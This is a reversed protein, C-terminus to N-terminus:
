CSIRCLTWCVRTSNISYKKCGADLDAIAGSVFRFAVPAGPELNNAILRNINTCPINRQTGNDLRIPYITVGVSIRYSNTEETYGTVYSRYIPEEWALVRAAKTKIGDTIVLGDSPIGLTGKMDSLEQM